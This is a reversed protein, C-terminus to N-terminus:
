PLPGDLRVNRWDGRLIEQRISAPDQGQRTMKGAFLAEMLCIGCGAAHGSAYCDLLSRHGMRDCHCYCPQQALVGPIEAAIAYARQVRPFGRFDIAPLLTPFPRAAAASAFYPPVPEAAGSAQGTPAQRGTTAGAELPFSPRSATWVMFILLVAAVAFGWCAISRLGSMKKRKTNAGNKMLANEKRHSKM